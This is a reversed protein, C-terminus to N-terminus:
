TAGKLKEDIMQEIEEITVVREQNNDYEDIKKQIIDELDEGKLPDDATDSPYEMIGKECATCLYVTGSPPEVSGEEPKMVLNLAYCAPCVLILGDTKKMNSAM